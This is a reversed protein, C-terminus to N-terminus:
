RPPACISLVSRSTQWTSKSNLAPDLVIKVVGLHCMLAIVSCNHMQDHKSHIKKMANAPTLNAFSAEPKGNGKADDNNRNDKDMITDPMASPCYTKLGPYAAIHARYVVEKVPWPFSRWEDFEKFSSKQKTSMEPVKGSTSRKITSASRKGSAISGKAYLHEKRLHEEDSEIESDEALGSEIKKAEDNDEAVALLNREVDDETPLQTRM